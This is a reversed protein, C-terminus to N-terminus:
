FYDETWIVKNQDYDELSKTVWTEDITNEYCLIHITAKEKPNLRLLRGIRQSSKRENGYAHMIIGVKLNPINVGESLQLVCALDQIYGKKFEELYYESNPNNSHYSAVGFKDAQEQTNAFIITKESQSELLKKAYQEKSPFGMIAKMRMISMIQREKPGHAINVRNTWYNYSEYESTVWTKPPKGAKMNRVRSLELKHVIIKYDNLIKDQVADDTVYTYIVPIYKNFLKGRKTHTYKPPTGTLGIIKGKFQSLWPEHSELLSHAEDLYIAKYDLDQKILSLYTSFTIHDLLHTLGFKEADDQWSKFISKKPAVVLFFSDDTLNKAMHKLAVLTKGVGVSLEVTGNKHKELAELAEKQVQDRTM